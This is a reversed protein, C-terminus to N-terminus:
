RVNNISNKVTDHKTKLVNLIANATATDPMAKPRGPNPGGAIALSMEHLDFLTKMCPDCIVIGTRTIEKAMAPDMPGVSMWTCPDCVAAYIKSLTALESKTLLTVVCPGCVDQLATSALSSRALEIRDRACEDHASGGTFRDIFRIIEGAGTTAGAERETAADGDSNFRLVVVETAEACASAASDAGDAGAATASPAFSATAAVILAIPLFGYRRFARM